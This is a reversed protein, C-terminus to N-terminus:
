IYVATKIKKKKYCNELECFRCGYQNEIVESGIGIVGSISKIPMMLCVESLEIGCPNGDLLRFLERQGSLHWGCYGPSFRATHPMKGIEKELLLEMQNGASEAICTGIIDVIFTKLIDGEKGIANQYAQFAEGATAAFLAFRESGKLLFSIVASTHLISGEDLFLCKDDVRGEFLKFACMPVAFGSIDNLLSESIDIIDKEPQITEYGMEEFLKDTTLSLSSFDLTFRHKMM